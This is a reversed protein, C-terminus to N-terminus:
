VNAVLPSISCTLARRGPTKHIYCAGGAIEFDIKNDVVIKSIFTLERSVVHDAGRLGLKM